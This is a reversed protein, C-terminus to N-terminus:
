LWTSGTPAGPETLIMKGFGLQFGQASLHVSSLHPAQYVLGDNVPYEDAPYVRQHSDPQRQDETPPCLVYGAAM